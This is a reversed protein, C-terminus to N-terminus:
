CAKLPNEPFSPLDPNEGKLAGAATDLRLEAKPHDPGHCSVCARTLLPKVEQLYRTEPEGAVGTAMAAFALLWSLCHALGLKMTILSLSRICAPILFRGPL